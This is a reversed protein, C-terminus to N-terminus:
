VSPGRSGDGEQQERAVGAVALDLHSPLLAQPRAAPVALPLTFSFTSGEGPVGTSEVWIRGGMAEVLIRSVYLGVGTGHVSSTIDRELRVFRNFLKPMDRPPVGLGFDRVRVVAFQTPAPAATEGRRGRLRAPKEEITTASITVPTGAPSYKLANSILNILIQRLRAEDARVELDLSIDMTVSRTQFTASSMLPEGIERPDFTELVVRVLPALEVNKVELRPTRSEMIGTDLVNTLLSLVADGATLARQLLQARREPTAREGAASLLELNNYLAMIPTRLEHNADIIFQDKLAALERQREEARASEQLSRAVQRTAPRFVVVGVLALAAFTLAILLKDLTAQQEQRLDLDQQYIQTLRIMGADFADEESLITAVIQQQTAALSEPSSFSPDNPLEVVHLGSALLAHYDPDIGVLVARAQNLDQGPSEIAVRASLTQYNSDFQYLATALDQLYHASTEPAQPAISAAANLSIDGSNIQEQLLLPITIADNTRAPDVVITGIAVYSVVILAILLLALSYFITLRRV